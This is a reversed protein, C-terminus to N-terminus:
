SPHLPPPRLFRVDISVLSTPTLKDSGSGVSGLRTGEPRVLDRVGTM